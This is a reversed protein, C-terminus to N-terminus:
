YSLGSFSNDIALIRYNGPSLFQFKYYGSDSADMSYDPIREMFNQQIM